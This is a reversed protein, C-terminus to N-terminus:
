RDGLRGVLFHDHFDVTFFVPSMAKAAQQLAREVEGHVKVLLHKKAREL